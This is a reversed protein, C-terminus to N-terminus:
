TTTRSLCSFYLDMIPQKQLHQYKKINRNSVTSYALTNLANVTYINIYQSEQIFPGTDESELIGPCQAKIEWWTMCLGNHTITRSM